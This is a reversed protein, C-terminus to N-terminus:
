KKIPEDGIPLLQVGEGEETTRIRFRVATVEAGYPGFKNKFGQHDGVVFLSGDELVCANPYYALPDFKFGRNDAPKVWTRGSDRSYIVQGIDGTDGSFVLVVVGDPTVVLDGKKYLAKNATGQGAHLQLPDSWTQGHDYSQFWASTCRSPTGISGDPLYAASGEEVDFANTGLVSVTEWSTGKDASRMLLTVFRTDQVPWEPGAPIPVGGTLMLVNGDASEFLSQPHSMNLLPGVIRSAEKWTHGDDHSRFVVTKMPLNTTVERAFEIPTTPMAARARVRWNQILAAAFMTGDSLQTVDGIAYAGRIVPFAQPRTWTRGQDSSRIWMMKAGDPAHWDKLFPRRQLLGDVYDADEYQDLPTPWSAHWYGASFTVFLDGNRLRCIKPWGCFGGFGEFPEPTNVTPSVLIRRFQSADGASEAEVIRMTVLPADDAAVHPTALACCAVVLCCLDGFYRSVDWVMM